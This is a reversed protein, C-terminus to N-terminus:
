GKTASIPPIAPLRFDVLQCISQGIRMRTWEDLISGTM